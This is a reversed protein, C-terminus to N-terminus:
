RCVRSMGCGQRKGNVSAKTCCASNFCFVVLLMRRGRAKVHYIAPLGCCNKWGPSEKQKDKLNLSFLTPLDSAMAAASDMQWHATDTPFEYVGSRWAWFDPAGQAVCDLAFDPLWILLATPVARRLLDRDPNLRGLVPSAERQENISKELGYVCVADPPNATDWRAAIEDLLSIVPEDLDIELLRKDSLRERLAGGMEKRRVPSNCKVFALTFSDSWRVVRELRNLIAEADARTKEQTAVAMLM